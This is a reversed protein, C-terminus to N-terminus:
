LLIRKKLEFPPPVMKSQATSPAANNLQGMIYVKPPLVTTKVGLNVVYIFVRSPEAM